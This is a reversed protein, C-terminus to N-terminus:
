AAPDGAEGAGLVPIRDPQRVEGSPCILFTLSKRPVGASYSRFFCSMRVSVANAASAPTAVGLASGARCRTELLLGRHLGPRDVGVVESVGEEPLGGRQLVQRVQGRAGGTVSSVAVLSTASLWSEIRASCRAARWGQIM